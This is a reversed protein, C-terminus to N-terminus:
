RAGGLSDYVRRQEARYAVIEWVRGNYFVIAVPKPTSPLLDYVVGEPLASAGLASEDRIRCYAASAEDFSEVGILARERGLGLGYRTPPRSEISKSM